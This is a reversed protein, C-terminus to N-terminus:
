AHFEKAEAIQAIRERYNKAGVAVFVHDAGQAGLEALVDEGPFSGAWSTEPISKGAVEKLRALHGAFEQHPGWFNWGDASAAVELLADSVGGVWLPVEPLNERLLQLVERLLRLRELKRDFRIGYAVQEDRNTADGIGLGITLRGPAIRHMTEAMAQLVRPLRISVRTVLTGIRVVRTSEAVAALSTWAELTPRELGGPHGWLHDSMWVSDLGSEEALRAAGLLEEPGSEHLPLIIGFKM